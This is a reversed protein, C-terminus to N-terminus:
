ISMSGDPMARRFDPLPHGDLCSFLHLCYDHDSIYEARPPLIQMAYQANGVFLEKVLVYEEWMPLRDPFSCSVHLWMKGDRERSASLLVLLGDRRRFATVRNSDIAAWGEPLRGPLYDFWPCARWVGPLVVRKLDTVTRSM